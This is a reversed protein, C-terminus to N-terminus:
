RMVVLKEVVEMQQDGKRAIIKYFYVGNSLTDGDFDRGDWRFQNFGARTPAFDFEQILRGSVTYIKLRVLDAEQTLIYTFDTEDRFPNPYNMVNALLFDESVHVEAQFYRLNGSIDRAIVEIKHTGERLSPEFVSIARLRQEQSNQQELLQAQGPGPGYPVKQENLLIAIQATDSFALNAADRIEVSVQPNAAVFDGGAIAHGDFTVRIEPSVTDREVWVSFAFNNNSEHLEVVEDQPDLRVTIDTHGSLYKSSFSVEFEKLEDVPLDEAYFQDLELGESGSGNAAFTVLFSDSPSLGFNGIKLRM